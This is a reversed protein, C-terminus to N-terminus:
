MTKDNTALAASPMDTALSKDQDESDTEGPMEYPMESQYRMVFQAEPEQECRTKDAHTESAQSSEIYTILDEDSWALEFSPKVCFMSEEIGEVFAESLKDHLFFTVLYLLDNDIKQRKLLDFARAASRDISEQFATDTSRGVFITQRWFVIPLKRSTDPEKVYAVSGIFADKKFSPENEYGQEKALLFTGVIPLGRTEKHHADQTSYAIMSTIVDQFKSTFDGFDFLKDTACCLVYGQKTEVLFEIPETLKELLEKPPEEPIAQSSESFSQSISGKVFFSYFEKTAHCHLDQVHSLDNQYVVDQIASYAGYSELAGRHMHDAFFQYLTAPDKLVKPGNDKVKKVAAPSETELAHKGLITSM